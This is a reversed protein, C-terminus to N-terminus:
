LWSKEQETKLYLKLVVNDGSKIISGAMPQQGIIQNGYGQIQINIGMREALRKAQKLSMSKFNPCKYIRVFSGLSALLTVKDSGKEDESPRQAVVIGKPFNNSHVNIIRQIKIKKKIALEKAEAIDLGVFCPMSFRKPGKSIIVKITRGQKIKKLPPISQSIIHREPIETNFEEAEIKLYLRKQEILKNAEVLSKGRLDPVIVTRSFSILRFSMYSSLMAVLAFTVAYFVIKFFGKM